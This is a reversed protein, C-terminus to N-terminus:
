WTYVKDTCRAHISRGTLRFYPSVFSSILRLAVTFSLPPLIFFPLSGPTRMYSCVETPSPAPHPDFDCFPCSATFGGFETPEFSSTVPLYCRVPVCPNVLICLSLNFGGFETPEVCPLALWFLCPYRACARLSSFGGFETPEWFPYSKPDFDLFVPLLRLWHVRPHLIASLEIPFM